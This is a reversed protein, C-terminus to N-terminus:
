ILLAVQTLSVSNTAEQRLSIRSYALLDRILTSMRDAGAQMRKLHDVGEGLQHSYQSQLLNCFAHIKRLPEQLDHSAIYAFQQLNENSRQLDRVSAQLQETRQQVLLDLEASLTKYRAESEAVQRRDLM